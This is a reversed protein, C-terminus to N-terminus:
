FPTNINLEKCFATIIGENQMLAKKIKVLEVSLKDIKIEEVAVFTDVYRTINLNYNNEAITSLPAAYSYKDITERSQYTNVILEIDQERL